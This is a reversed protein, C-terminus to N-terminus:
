NLRLNEPVYFEDCLRIFQSYELPGFVKKEKKKIIWYYESDLGKSYKYDENYTYNFEKYRRPKQKAVIFNDDYQYSLIKPPIDTLDINDNMVAALDEYYCFDDGLEYLGDDFVTFFLLFIFSLLLGYILIKISRYLKSQRTIYVIILIPIMLVIVFFYYSMSIRM